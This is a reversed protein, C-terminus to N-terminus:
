DDVAIREALVGLERWVDPGTTAVSVFSTTVAGDKNKEDAHRTHPVYSADLHNVM